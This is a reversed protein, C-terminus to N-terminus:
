YKIGEVANRLTEIDKGVYIQTTEISSHGALNMMTYANIKLSSLKTLFTHRLSHFSRGTINLSKLIKTFKMTLPTRKFPLNEFNLFAFEDENRKVIENVIEALCNHIPINKRKGTKREYIYFLNENIRIDKVKLECVESIRCGTFLTFLIVDHLAKYHNNTYELIQKIESDTFYNNEKKETKFQKLKRAPNVEIIDLDIAKNFISKICRLYINSTTPNLNQILRSKILEFDSPTYQNIIKDGAHNIVHTFAHKYKDITSKALETEFTPIIRDRLESLFINGEFKPPLFKKFKEAAESKNRSGTSIYKKEYKGSNNVWYLIYYKGNPRKELRPNRM